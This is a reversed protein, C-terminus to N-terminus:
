MEVLGNDAAYASAAVRNTVGIKEYVNRVHTTVTRTSISLEGSIEQNTLGRAILKLVDVERETLGDPYARLATPSFRALRDTIRQRLPEMGLKAALARGEELYVGARKNDEDTGRALLADAFDCCTWALNPRYGANRNFTYAEKFHEISTELEDATFALLGLLRSYLALRDGLEPLLAAYHRKASDGDRRVVAIWGLNETAHRVYGRDLLDRSASLSVDFWREENTIRAIKPILASGCILLDILFTAERRQVNELLRNVYSEGATFNGTEYELLARDGLVGVATHGPYDWKIMFRLGEDSLERAAQWNGIAQEIQQKGFCMNAQSMPTSVENAIQYAAEKHFSAGDPDGLEFLCGGINLHREFKFWRPEREPAVTAALEYCEVAARIRNADGCCRGWEHYIHRKQDDDGNEEAIALARKLGMEVEKFDDGLRSRLLSAGVLLQPDEPSEEDILRIARRGFDDVSIEANGKRQYARAGLIAWATLVLNWPDRKKEYFDFVPSLEEVPVVAGTALYKAYRLLVNLEALAEDMPQGGKAEIAREYIEKAESFAFQDSARKGAILSYHVLKGAGVLLQAEAYHAALEGAHEDVSDGYLGELTEAIRAHLKVRRTTTLEERLTEQVLRHSFRYHGLTDKLEEILRAERAEELVGVLQEESLDDILRDLVEVTFDRGVVSAVGLAQNCSESLRDLRRGIVERVGEPIRLKWYERIAPRDPKFAGEQVLLRVVETVFLANGETQRYVADVLMAPPAVGTAFEILRAVAADSLGRLRIREYRRERTLDGLTRSLPHTRRLEVDRYTGLIMLRSDQQEHGIFELLNLSPEDSWHLNELVVLMAGETSAAKLFSTISDFLQFREAEADGMDPPDGIDPLQERLEPVIRAISGAGHGLESRLQGAERTRSYSRIVQIWPWYPPAGLAEQTRGWIVRVGSTEAYTALEEATRTKGIGPEGALMVMRGQGSRADEVATRLRDMEEQRGVFVGSVASDLGGTQRDVAPESVDVSELAELVLSASGPREEPKKALLSTILADLQKPCRDNHCSPAVPTGGLHQGIIATADDGSFPPRGSVMEYLMVGLSYLDAPPGTDKGAAQEPSIYHVIDPVPKAQALRDLSLLPKMGFHGIKVGGDEGLWVDSPNLYLEAVGREHAYMLGSCLAKGVALVRDMDIGSKEADGLEAKLNKNGVLETVVYPQEEDEGVDYVTVINAHSGLGLTRRVELRVGEKEGENMGKTKILVCAADRGLEVDRCRYVFKTEDEHLLSIVEYRGDAFSSPQEHASRERMRRGALRLFTRADANGEDMALIQESIKKVSPWDNRDNAEDLEQILKKLNADMLKGKDVDVAM